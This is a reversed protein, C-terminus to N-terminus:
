CVTSGRMHVCHRGMVLMCDFGEQSCLSSGDSAYLRFGDLLCLSSAYNAYLRVGGTFVIVVVGLFVTLAM